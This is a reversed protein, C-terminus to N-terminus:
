NAASDLWSVVLLLVLVFLLLANPAAAVFVPEAKPDLLLVVLANPELEGKPFVSLLALGKPELVPFANPFVAFGVPVPLVPKPFLSLLALGKAGAALVELAKLELVPLAKPELEVLAKPEFVPPLLGKPEFVPPLANPPPGVVLLPLLAKPPPPAAAFGNPPVCVFVPPFANEEEPNVM